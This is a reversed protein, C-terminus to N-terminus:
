FFDGSILSVILKWITPDYEVLNNTEILIFLIMVINFSNEEKKQNQPNEENEGNM